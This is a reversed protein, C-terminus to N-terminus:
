ARPLSLGGAWQAVGGPPKSIVLIDSTEKYQHRYICIAMDM